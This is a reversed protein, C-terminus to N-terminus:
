HKKKESCSHTVEVGRCTDMGTGGWGIDFGPGGVLLDNGKMGKLTDDGGGARITDNGAGGVLLDSSNSGVIDDDGGRGMIRQNLGFANQGARISDNFNSGLVIAFFGLSDQGDPGTAFGLQNDIDEGGTAHVFSVTDAGTNCGPVNCAAGTDLLDNGLGGELTDNGGYGDITDFGDGGTLVNGLVNGAITDDGSGGIANEVSHGTFQNLDICESGTGSSGDVTDTGGGGIFDLTMPGGCVPGGTQLTTQDGILTDDAPTGIFGEMNQFTDNGDGTATGAVTDFVAPGAADSLDLYDFGGGGDVTDDGPGPQVTEGNGSGVFTDNGSGLIFNEIDAAVDDHECTSALPCGGEGSVAGGGPAVYLSNTRGSYDLTDNGNGGSITDAGNASSGGVITDNGDQGFLTDNGTGGDITDNGDGGQLVNDLSNGTITDAFPGGIANQVDALTDSGMGTGTAATLDVTVPGSAAAYSVTDSGPGGQFNDNGDGSVLTDDGNGGSLTLNAAFPSSAAPIDDGTFNAITSTATIGALNGADLTDDGAGGDVVINEANDIRLDANGNANLDGVLAGGASTGLRLSDNTGPDAVAPSALGGYELVLTDTGNGLDVSVNTSSVMNNGGFTATPDLLTLTEAGADSGTVNVYVINSGVTGTCAAFAGGNVSINYDGAAGAFPAAGTGVALVVHDDTGVAVNLTDNATVSTGSACTTAAMAPIATVVLWVLLTGATVVAASALTRRRGGGDGRSLLHM